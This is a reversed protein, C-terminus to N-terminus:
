NPGFGGRFRPIPIDEVRGFPSTLHRGYYGNFAPFSGSAEQLEARLQEMEAKVLTTVSHRIFHKLNDTLSRELYSSLEKDDDFLPMKKVTRNSKIQTTPM